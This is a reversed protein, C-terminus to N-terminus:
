LIQAPQLYLEYSHVPIIDQHWFLWTNLLKWTMCFTSSMAFLTTSIKQSFPFNQIITPFTKKLDGTNADVNRKGLSSVGWYKMSTPNTPSRPEKFTVAM